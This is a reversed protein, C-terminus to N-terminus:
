IPFEPKNQIHKKQVLKLQMYLVELFLHSTFYEHILARCFQLAAKDRYPKERTGSDLEQRHPDRLYPTRIHVEDSPRPRTEM